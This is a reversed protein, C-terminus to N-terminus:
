VNQLDAWHEGTEEGWQKRDTLRQGSGNYLAGCSCGSCWSDDLIVTKGCNDCEGEAPERVTKSYDHIGMDKIKEGGMAGALCQEFLEQHNTELLNGDKDCSFGYGAGPSSAIDFVRSYEEILVREAKKTIKM